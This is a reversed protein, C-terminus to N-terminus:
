NKHQDQSAPQMTRVLAVGSKRIPQNLMRYLYIRRCVANKREETIGAIGRAPRYKFVMNRRQVCRFHTISFDARHTSTIAPRVLVAHLPIFYNRLYQWGLLTLDIAIIHNVESNRGFAKSGLLQILAYSFVLAPEGKCQKVAFRLRRKRVLNLYPKGGEAHLVNEPAVHVINLADNLRTRLRSYGSLRIVSLVRFARRM